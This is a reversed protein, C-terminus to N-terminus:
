RSTEYNSIGRLDLPPPRHAGDVSPVRLRPGSPRKPRPQGCGDAPAQEVSTMTTMHPKPFEFTSPPPSRRRPKPKVPRQMIDRRPWDGLPSPSPLPPRYKKAPGSTFGPNGTSTSSKLERLLDLDALPSIKTRGDRPWVPMPKIFSPMAAGSPPLPTAEPLNSLHGVDMQEPVVFVPRFPEIKYRGELGALHHPIQAPRINVPRPAYIELSPHKKFGVTFSPSNPSGLNQQVAVAHLAHVRSAWIRPERYYRSAAIVVLTFFYVLLIITCMGTFALLVRVSTCLADPFLIGVKGSCSTGSEIAILAAGGALEMVWFLAVWACEFWVRTTLADPCLLEIFILIFISVLSLAGLFILYVDVPASQNLTDNVLSYNWAAVSCIIANCVTFLAFFVYRTLLFINVSTMRAM